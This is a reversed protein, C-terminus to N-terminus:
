KQARRMLRGKEMCSNEMRESHPKYKLPAVECFAILTILDLHTPCASNIVSIFFAYLIKTRFASPLLGNPLGLRLPYHIM